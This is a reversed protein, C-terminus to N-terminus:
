VLMRKIAKFTRTTLIHMSHCVTYKICVVATEVKKETDLMHALIIYNELVYSQLLCVTIYSELVYSPM